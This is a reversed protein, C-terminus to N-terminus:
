VLCYYGFVCLPLGFLAQIFINEQVKGFGFILSLLGIAVAVKGAWKHAFRINQNTKLFGFDPHLGLFGVLGIGFYLVLCLLGGQGHTSTFHPKNRMSKNTYIVYFAFAALLASIFMLIGHMKTNEYGGIRKILIANLALPVFATTMAIPHWYFWPLPWSGAISAIYIVAIVGFAIIPYKLANYKAINQETKSISNLMIPDTSM